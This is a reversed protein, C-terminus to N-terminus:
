RRTINTSEQKRLANFVLVNIQTLHIFALAPHHVKKEVPLFRFRTKILQFLARSYNYVMLTFM